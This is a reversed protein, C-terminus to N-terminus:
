TYIISQQYPPWFQYAQALSQLLPQLNTYVNNVPLTPELFEIYYGQIWWHEYIDCQQLVQDNALHESKLTAHAAEIYLTVKNGLHLYNETWASVFCEKYPMWTEQLYKIAGPKNEYCKLFKDTVLQWMRLFENWDKPFVKNIANMLALERDTVIVKPSSLRSFSKSICTLAWEYEIESENHYEFEFDSGRLEDLLVSMDVSAEHNHEPNRVEFYWTNDHRTGFLEFPCNLLKLSTQKCCSNETLNLRNRYYDSKDCVLMKNKIEGKVNSQSRKTTIAYELTKPFNQVHLLLEERSEFQGAPPSLMSPYIYTK